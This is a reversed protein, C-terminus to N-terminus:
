SEGPFVGPPVRTETNRSSRIPHNPWLFTMETYGRKGSQGKVAESRWLVVDVNQHSWKGSACNPECNDTYLVGTATATSANWSSWALKTLYGTSDCTFVFTKPEVVPKNGCNYVAVSTVVAPQAQPAAGHATAAQAALPAGVAALATVSLALAASRTLKM